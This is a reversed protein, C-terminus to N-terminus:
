GRWLPFSTFDRGEGRYQGDRFYKGLLEQFASTSLVSFQELYQRSDMEQACPDFLLYSFFTLYGVGSYLSFYFFHSIVVLNFQKSRLEYRRSPYHHHLTFPPLSQDTTQTSGLTLIWRCIPLEVMKILKERLQSQQFSKM